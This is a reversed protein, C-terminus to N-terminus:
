LALIRGLVKCTSTAANGSAVIRFSEAAHCNVIVHAKTNQALAAPNGTFHLLKDAILATWTGIYDYFEGAPHDRLQLIFVDFAVASGHNNQVEMNLVGGAVLGTETHVTTNSAAAVVVDASEFDRYIM